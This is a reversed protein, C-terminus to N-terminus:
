GLGNSREALARNICFGYDKIRHRRIGSIDRQKETGNHIYVTSHNLSRGRASKLRSKRLNDQSNQFVHSIFTESFKM